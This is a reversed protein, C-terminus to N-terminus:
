GRPCLYVDYYAKVTSTPLLKRDFCLEYVRSNRENYLGSGDGEFLDNPPSLTVRQRVLGDQVEDLTLEGAKHKPFPLYFSLVLPTGDRECDWVEIGWSAIRPYKGVLFDTM